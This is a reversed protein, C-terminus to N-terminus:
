KEDLLSHIFTNMGDDDLYLELDDTEASLGLYKGDINMLLTCGGHQCYQKATYTQGDWVAEKDQGPNWNGLQQQSTEFDSFNPAPYAVTLYFDTQPLFFGIHQRDETVAAEWACPAAFKQHDAGFSGYCVTPSAQTLVFIVALFIGLGPVAVLFPVLQQKM